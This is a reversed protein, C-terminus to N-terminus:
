ASRLAESFHQLLTSAHEVPVLFLHFRVERIEEPLSETLSASIRTVEDVLTERYNEIHGQGLVASEYVILISLCLVSILSDIPAGRDLANDLDNSLLFQPEYLNLITEREEILVDTELSVLLEDKIEEFLGDVTGGSYIRTRGLWLQDGDLAHVVHANRTIQDGFKSRHFLKCAIPESEFWHRLIAHLLAEGFLRTEDVPCESAVADLSSALMSGMNLQDIEILESARLTLEAIWKAVYSALQKSRWKKREYQADYSSSSRGFADAELSHLELFFKEAKVRYPSGKSQPDNRIKSLEGKFWDIADNRKIEKREKYRRTNSAATEVRELLQAYIDTIQRNSLPTREHDALESIMQSNLARLHEIGSFVEWQTNTIWYSLDNNNASLTKPFKKKFSAALKKIKEPEGRRDVPDQLSSLNKNVARKSVVRFRSNKNGNDCLLSKEAMSTPKNATSRTLLETANWKSDKETTKVQIYEVTNIGNRHSFVTVDDGVECAVMTIRRDLIMQLVFRAAVHDQYKFGFRAAVGGADSTDEV